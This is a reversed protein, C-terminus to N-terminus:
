KVAVFNVLFCLFYIVEEASLKGQSFTKEMRNNKFEKDEDYKGSVEKLVSKYIRIKLNNM